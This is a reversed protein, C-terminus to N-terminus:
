KSKDQTKKELELSAQIHLPLAGGQAVTVNNLLRDLEFDTRIALYLHRPAIRWRNRSKAVNGALETLEAILYELVAALYVPTCEGVRQAYKGKRLYRHIRSVPFALGARDSRSNRRVRSGKGFGFM